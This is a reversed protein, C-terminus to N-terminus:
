LHKHADTWGPYSVECQSNINSSVNLYTLEGGATLALIMRLTFLFCSTQWM